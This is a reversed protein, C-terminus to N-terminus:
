RPTEYKCLALGLSVFRAEAYTMAHRWHRSRNLRSFVRPRKVRSLPATLFSDLLRKASSGGRLDYGPHGALTAM